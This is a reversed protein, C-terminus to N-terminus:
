RLGEGLKEGDMLLKIIDECLDDCLSDESMESFSKFSQGDKHKIKVKKVVKAAIDYLEEYMRAGGLDNDSNAVDGLHKLYLKVRNKRSPLEINATGEFDDKAQYIVVKM